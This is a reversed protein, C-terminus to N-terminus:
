RPMVFQVNVVLTTRDVAVQSRLGKPMVATNELTYTRLYSGDYVAGTQLKWRKILREGDSSPLDPFTLVGMRFQQQETVAIEFTVRRTADDLKPTFTAAQLIYGIKEYQEHVARLGAELKVVEALDGAKMGLAGNLAPAQLASTGAWEARDFTYAVGEKVSMTVTVGSCGQDLVASQYAVGAAWYGKRRYEQRLTGAALDDVFARSYTTGVVSQAATLLDAESIAAAGPIRLACMKLSSTAGTVVFLHQRERTRMNVRSESTVRGQISRGDLLQQLSKAVYDMAADNAPVLGDFTPLHQRVATTLEQDTFWIFNDFIVPRTWAEEEVELTANLKGATTTYRYNVSKFLGTSALVTVAGDLSQATVPQGIKLGSLRVVDDATLRKVGNVAVGGLAMAAAPPAQPSRTDVAGAPEITAIVIAAIALAPPLRM